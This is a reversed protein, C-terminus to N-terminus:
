NWWLPNCTKDNSKNCSKDSTWILELRNKDTNTSGKTTYLNKSITNIEIENEYVSGDKGKEILNINYKEDWINRSLCPLDKSIWPEM